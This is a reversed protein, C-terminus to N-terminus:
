AASFVFFVKKQMKKKKKKKTRKGTQKKTVRSGALVSLQRTKVVLNVVLVGAFYPGRFALM